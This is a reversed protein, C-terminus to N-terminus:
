EEKDTHSNHNEINRRIIEIKVITTIAIFFYIGSVIIGIYRIFEMKFLLMLLMCLMSIIQSDLAGKFRLRFPIMPSFIKFIFAMLLASLILTIYIDILLIVSNTIVWVVKFNKFGLNILEILKDLELYDADSIKSFDIETVGLEEYTKSYVVNNLYIVDMKDKNFEIIHYTAYEIGIERKENKPNFCLIAEDILFAFGESNEKGILINDKLLLDNGKADRILYNEIINHSNNSIEEKLSLEVVLPSVVIFALLLIHIFSKYLKEGLFFGIKRPEFLCIYMKKFFNSM